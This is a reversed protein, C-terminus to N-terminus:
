FDNHFRCPDFRATFSKRAELIGFSAPWFLQEPLKTEAAHAGIGILKVCCRHRQFLRIQIHPDHKIRKSKIDTLQNQALAILRKNCTTASIDAVLAPANCEIRTRICKIDFTDQRNPRITHLGLCVIPDLLIDQLTVNFIRAKGKTSHRIRRWIQM